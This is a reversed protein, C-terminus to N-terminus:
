PATELKLSTTFGARDLKHTAEVLLWKKADIESKFGSVTIPTEPFLDPRGYAVDFELTAPERKAHSLATKAGRKASAESAYVRAIRKAGAAKGETVSKRAGSARDHWTATVGDAANRTSEQYQHPGCETRRITAKALAKGSPTKGSGIPSLILAGSKITAVADHARGLRRLFALDSERSQVLAPVAILALADACRPKLSHRGAVDQVVQGLTTDHWSHERRTAMAGGFEASRGKLSITDPAGAHGVEDVKFTGKVQLGVTVGTGKKWGIKVELMAGAKPLALKGDTDDLQLDIEDAEDGRKTTVTLGLLRPRIAPTLDKGDLTISWDPQRVVFTM